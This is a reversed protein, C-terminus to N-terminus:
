MLAKSFLPLETRCSSRTYQKKRSSQASSTSQIAVHPTLRCPLSHLHLDHEAGQLCALVFYIFRCVCSYLKKRAGGTVEVGKKTGVLGAEGSAASKEIGGGGAGLPKIRVIALGGDNYKIKSKSAAKGTVTAKASAPIDEAEKSPESHTKEAAAAMSRPVSRATCSCIEFLQTDGSSLEESRTDM